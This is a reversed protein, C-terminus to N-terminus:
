RDPVVDTMSLCLYRKCASSAQTHQLVYKQIEEPPFILNGEMM